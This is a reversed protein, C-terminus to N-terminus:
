GIKEQRKKKRAALINKRYEPDAWKVKRSVIQKARYEPDKWKEKISLSTSESIRELISPDDKYNQSIKEGFEKRINPDSLYAKTKESMYARMEPSQMRICAIVRLKEITEYSREGRDTQGGADLNYGFELNSSKFDSIWKIELEDIHNQDKIDKELIESIFSEKGYKRIANHFPLTSGKLTVWCHKYWRKSLKQKTQGVYKKGNVINTFCYIIWSM